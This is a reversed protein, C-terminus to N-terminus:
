IEIKLFYKFKNSNSFTNSKFGLKRKLGFTGQMGDKIKKEKENKQRLQNELTCPGISQVPGALKNALVAKSAWKANLGPCRSGALLRRPEKGELGARERRGKRQAAVRERGM